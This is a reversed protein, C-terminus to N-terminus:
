ESDINTCVYIKSNQPKSMKITFYIISDCSTYYFFYDQSNKVLKGGYLCKAHKFYLISILFDVNIFYVFMNLNVHIRKSLKKITCNKTILPMILICSLEKGM